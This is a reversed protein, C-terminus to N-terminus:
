YVESPRLREASRKDSAILVDCGSGRLVAQTVGGLLAQMIGSRGHSGVALLDVDHRSFQLLVPIPLGDSVRGETQGAVGRAFETLASQAKARRAERYREMEARSTGARLMAEHFQPPIDDVHLLLLRADPALARAALAAAESEPSFDVAVVIERYHKRGSGRVMLVANPATRIVRDATSGIVREKLTETRGPGIVLLSAGVEHALHVIIKHPVGWEIRVTDAVIGKDALLADLKSRAEQQLSARLLNENFGSLEAAHALTETEIVHLVILRARAMAALEAARALIDASAHGLDLAVLIRM